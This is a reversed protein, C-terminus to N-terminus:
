RQRKKLVLRGNSYSIEEYDKFVAILLALGVASAAIIAAIEIGTLAAAPAAAFFSLGGTAPAAVTAVGMSAVLVSLAGTGVTTIRKAKKLKDALEGNVIIEEDGREKAAELEQKTTVISM